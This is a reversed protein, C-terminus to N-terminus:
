GSRNIWRLLVHTVTANQRLLELMANAPVFILLRHADATVDTRAIGDIAGVGVHM